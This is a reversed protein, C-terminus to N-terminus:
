AKMMDGLQGKGTEALEYGARRGSLPDSCAQPDADLKCVSVSRQAWDPFTGLRDRVRSVM